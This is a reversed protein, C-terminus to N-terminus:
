HALRRSVAHGHQHRDLPCCHRDGHPHSFNPSPRQILTATPPTAANAAATIEGM